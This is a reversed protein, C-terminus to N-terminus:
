RARQKALELAQAGLKDDDWHSEWCLWRDELRVRALIEDPGWTSVLPDDIEITVVADVRGDRAVQHVGSLCVMIVRGDDLTLSAAQEDIWTRELVRGRYESGVLEGTYVDGSIGVVSRRFTPAPLVLEQKTALLELAAWQAIRRLCAEGQHGTHHRFFPRMSGPQLYEDASKGANVAQLVGSCAACVCDCALGTEERSLM